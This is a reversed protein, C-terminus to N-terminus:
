IQFACWSNDNKLIITNYYGDPFRHKGIIVKDKDLIYNYRDGEKIMVIFGYDSMKKLRYKVFSHKADLKKKRHENNLNKLESHYKKTIEWTGLNNFYIEKIIFIDFNDISIKIM